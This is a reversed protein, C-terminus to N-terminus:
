DLIHDAAISLVDAHLHIANLFTDIDKDAIGLEILDDKTLVCFALLDIEERVFVDTYAEMNLGKLISWVDINHNLISHNNNEMPPSITAAATEAAAAMDMQENDSLSSSMNLAKPSLAQM